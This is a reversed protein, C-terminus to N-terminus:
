LTNLIGSKWQGCASTDEFLVSQCKFSAQLSWIAKSESNTCLKNKYGTILHLTIDYVLADIVYQLIYYSLVSLPM